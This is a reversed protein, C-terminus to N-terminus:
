ISGEITECTFTNKSYDVLLISKWYASIKTMSFTIPRRSLTDVVINKKGKVYEIEVDYAHVKSMLKQQRVNLDRQELFYRLSNHETQVVICGGVLYERFKALAHMIALMEKDYIPYLRELERLNM